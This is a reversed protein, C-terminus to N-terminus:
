GSGTSPDLMLFAATFGPGLTTMLTRRQAERVRMRELVFLVTVASMNGYDRLVARSDALGGQPLALVQELAELVKTGGPHCAFTEIEGLAIDNRRLFDFLVPGFETGVLTPIHRSFIPKLGDEEIDWGMIDLSGPWTHEGSAGLAPGNGATSVIAGAAGDGFLATAVVNSKSLDDKRFTLACLEVALFLVKAGPMAAALAGARTLGIVGGACGFGFIPLRKIDRRLGMREVLLADLSPTAVGTTSVTVIADIEDPALKAEALCALAVTEFLQVAHQVYLSTRDKWGHPEAYWEIPVCSYRREIGTNAFVPLLREVDPRGSFQVRVRESVVAQDLAYPPVATKLALLRPPPAASASVRGVDRLLRVAQGYGSRPLLKGGALVRVPQGELQV